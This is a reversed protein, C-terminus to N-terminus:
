EEPIIYNGGITEILDQESMYTDIENSKLDSTYTKIFQSIKKLEKQFVCKSEKEQEFDAKYVFSDSM